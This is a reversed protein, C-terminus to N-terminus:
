DRWLTIKQGSSLQGSYYDPGDRTLVAIRNGNESYVLLEADIGTMSEDLRFDNASALLANNCGSSAIRGRPTNAGSWTGQATLSMSCGCKPIGDTVTWRGRIDFESPLARAAINGAVAGGVPGAVFTGASAIANRGVTRGVNWAAATGFATMRDPKEPPGSPLPMTCQLPGVTAARALSTSGDTGVAQCASLTVAAVATVISNQLLRRPPMRKNMSRGHTVVTALIQNWRGKANGKADPDGLYAGVSEGFLFL